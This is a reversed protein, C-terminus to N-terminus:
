RQALLGADIGYVTAVDLTNGNKVYTAEIINLIQETVLVCGMSVYRNAVAPDAAVEEMYKYGHIGYNTPEGKYHLRLFRGTPGFTTRDWQIKTSEVTWNRSPTGAFYTLGIYNVTRRQGSAIPFSLYTGDEHVLYGVNEKTDAIFRDNVRVEWTEIGMGGQAEAPVTALSGTASSLVLGFIATM